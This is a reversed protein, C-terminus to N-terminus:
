NTRDLALRLEFDDIDLMKLICLALDDQEIKCNHVLLQYNKYLSSALVEDTISSYNIMQSLNVTRSKHLTLTFDIVTKCNNGHIGLEHNLISSKKYNIEKNIYLELDTSRRTFAVRHLM